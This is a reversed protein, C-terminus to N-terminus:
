ISVYPFSSITLLPVPTYADVEWFFSLQIIPWIVLDMESTHNSWGGFFFFFLFLFLSSFFFISNAGVRPLTLQVPSFQAKSNFQM